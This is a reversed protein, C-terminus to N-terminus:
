DIDLAWVDDRMGGGCTPAGGAFYARHGVSAGGFGHRGQPLPAMAQWTDHAPDYAWAQDYALDQNPIGGPRCEGGAYVIRGEIVTAAGASRAAPLPAAATWRDSAPDYVDHRTQNDDTDATRGGLLHIKGDLVVVAMHDRAPGPLPAADSWRGSGPDYVQHLNVTGYGAQLPPLGPPMPLDVVSDSTRGGFAHLRGGVAALSVSGRAPSIPALRTWVASAPDYVFVSGRPALHVNRTFGGVAYLRGDLVATGVHSLAEPLDPLAQWRDGVPDYRLARRSADRPPADGAQETGGIVYVATGDSVANTEGLRVPLPARPTWTGGALALPSLCLMLSALLTLHRLHM